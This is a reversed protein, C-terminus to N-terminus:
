RLTCVFILLGAHRLLLMAPNKTERNLRPEPRTQDILAPGRNLRPELRTQDIMAPEPRLFDFAFDLVM